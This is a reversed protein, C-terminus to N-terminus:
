DKSGHRLNAKYGPKFIMYPVLPIILAAGCICGNNKAWSIVTQTVLNKYINRKAEIFSCTFCLKYMDFIIVM